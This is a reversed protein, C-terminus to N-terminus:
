ADAITITGSGTCTFTRYNDNTSMVIDGTVSATKGVPLEMNFVYSAVGNVLKYIQYTEDVGDTLSIQLQKVLGDSNTWPLVTIVSEAGIDSYITTGSVAVSTIHINWVEKCLNEFFVSELRETDFDGYGVFRQETLVATVAITHSAGSAVNFWWESGYEFDFGVSIPYDTFDIEYESVWVAGYYYYGGGEDYQKPLAYDTGDLTVTIENPLNAFTSDYPIGNPNGYINDSFLSNYEEGGTAFTVTQSNVLTVEKGLSVGGEYEGTIGLVSVDKKINQATLNSDVVQATAYAKVDVEATSTITKKGTPVSVNDEVAESVDALVESITDGGSDTGGITENVDKLVEVVTDGNSASGGFALVLNKLAEVITM